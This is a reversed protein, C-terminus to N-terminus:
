PIKTVVPCTYTKDGHQITIVVPLCNAEANAMQIVTAIDTVTDPDLETANPKPKFVSVERPPWVLSRLEDLDEFDFGLYVEQCEAQGERFARLLSDIRPLVVQTYYRPWLKHLLKGMESDDM